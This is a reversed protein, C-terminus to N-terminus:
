AAVTAAVTRPVEDRCTAVVLAPAPVTPKGGRIALLLVM